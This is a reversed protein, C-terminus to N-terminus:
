SATVFTSLDRRIDYVQSDISAMEFQEVKVTIKGYRSMDIGIEAPIKVELVGSVPILRTTTKSEYLYINHIPIGQSQNNGKISVQINYSDWTHNWTGISDWNGVTVSVLVWKNAINVSYITDDKFSSVTQEWLLSKNDYDPFFNFQNYRWLPVWGSSVSATDSSLNPTSVNNDVTNIFEKVTGGSTDTLIADKPWGGVPMHSFDPQYGSQTLFSGITCIFGLQNLDHRTIPKQPNPTGKETTFGTAFENHTDSSLGFATDLNVTRAAFPIAITPITGFSIM